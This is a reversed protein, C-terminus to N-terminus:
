LETPQYVDDLEMIRHKNNKYIKSCYIQLYRRLESMKEVLRKKTLGSHTSLVFYTSYDTDNTMIFTSEGQWEQLNMNKM